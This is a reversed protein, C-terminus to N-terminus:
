HYLFSSNKLIVLVIIEVEEQFWKGDFGKSSTVFDKTGKYRMIDFLSVAVIGPVKKCM